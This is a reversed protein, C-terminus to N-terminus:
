VPRRRRRPMPAQAVAENDNHPIDDVPSVERYYRRLQRRVTSRWTLATMCNRADALHSATHLKFTPSDGAQVLFQRRQVSAVDEENVHLLAALHRCEKPDTTKGVIKINTLRLVDDRVTPSMGFGMGPQILTGLLAFKRTEGLITLTSKSIFNQCEDVFLHTRVRKHKPLKERRMAICQLTAIIFRGLAESVEPGVRGKGLNFLIIKRQNIADELDITSPGCMFNAFAQFNLLSQIKTAVAGKTPGFRGQAFDHRFFARIHERPSQEGLAVLDSNHGDIMFRKLDALTSGDRDLLTLICPVLLAQMNLTLEGAASGKILEQFVSVIQQAAIDKSWDSTDSLQFPNITPTFGAALYPDIYVVRDSGIHEKWQAVERVLDGAPDIVIVPVRCSHQVYSHILVKVTESKGAETTGVVYTHLRRDNEKLFVQIDRQLLRHLEPAQDYLYNLYGTRDKTYRDLSYRKLFRYSQVYPTLDPPHEPDYTATELKHRMSDAHACAHLYERYSYGYEPRCAVFAADICAPAEAPKFTGLCHYDARNDGEEIDRPYPLRLAKCALRDFTKKKMM